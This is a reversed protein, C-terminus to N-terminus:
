QVVEHQQPLSRAQQRLWARAEAAHSGRPALALYREFSLKATGPDGYDDRLVLALLYHGDPHAPERALVEELERRAAPGDGKAFHITAVVQRLRWDEPHSEVYPEAYGLASDFRSSALCVKVLQKVVSGEAYGRARAAQLFHEAPVYEGQDALALGRAYLQEAPVDRLSKVQPVHGRTCGTGCVAAASLLLVGQWSTRNM